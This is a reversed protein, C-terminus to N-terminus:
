FQKQMAASSRSMFTRQMAESAELGFYMADYLVNAGADSRQKTAFLKASIREALNNVSRESPKNGFLFPATLSGKM